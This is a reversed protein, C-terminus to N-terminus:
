IDISALQKNVEVIDWKWFKDCAGGGAMGRDLSDGGNRGSAKKRAKEKLLDWGHTGGCDEKLPGGEGSLCMVKAQNSHEVGTTVRLNSVQMARVLSPDARGLLTIQHEWGAGLDYEYLMQVKGKYKKADYIRSLPMEDAIKVPHAVMDADEDDSQIYMITNSLGSFPEPSQSSNTIFLTRYTEDRPNMVTEGEEPLKSIEFQYMHANEWGFAIQLVLHLRDFTLNSPVSLVRTVCPNEVHLLQVQLLYNEIPKRKVVRAPVEEDVEDKMSSKSSERYPELRVNRGSIKEAKPM